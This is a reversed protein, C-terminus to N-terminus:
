SPLDVRATDDTVVDVSRNTPTRGVRAVDLLLLAALFPGGVLGAGVSVLVLDLGPVAVSATLVGAAIATLTTVQGFLLRALTRGPLPVGTGRGGLILLGTIVLWAGAGVVAVATGVLTPRDAPWLGAFGVLAVTLPLLVAEASRAVGRRAADIADVQGSLAVALLGSLAAGAIAAALFFTMWDTPILGNNVTVGDNM